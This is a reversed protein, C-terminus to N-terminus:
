RNCRLSGWIRILKKWARCGLGHFHTECFLKKNIIKHVFCHVRWIRGGWHLYANRHSLLVGLCSHQTSPLLNSVIITTTLQCLLTHYISIRRLDCRFFLFFITFHLRFCPQCFVLTLFVWASNCDILIGTKRQSIHVVQFRPLIASHTLTTDQHYLLPHCVSVRGLNIRVCFWVNRVTGIGVSGISIHLHTYSLFFVTAITIDQHTDKLCRLGHSAWEDPSPASVPFNSTIASAFFSAFFSFFLWYFGVRILFDVCDRCRYTHIQFLLVEM